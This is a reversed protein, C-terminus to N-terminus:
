AKPGEILAASIAQAAVATLVYGSWRDLVRGDRGILVTAPAAAVGYRYAAAHRPDAFLPLSSLQWDYVTNELAGESAPTSTDDVVAVQLGQAAYQSALSVLEVAQSRSPTDASDPQTALFSVLTVEGQSPLTRSSGGAGADSLRVRPAISGVPLSAFKSASPRVSVAGPWLLVAVVALLAVGVVSAILGPM